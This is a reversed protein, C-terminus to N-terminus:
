QVVFVITMNERGAEVTRGNVLTIAPASIVMSDTGRWDRNPTYTVTYNQYSANGNKAQVELRGRDAPAAYSPIGQIEILNVVCTANARVSFRITSGGRLLECNAGASSGPQALVKLRNSVCDVAEHMLRQKTVLVWRASAVQRRTQEWRKNDSEQQALKAESAKAAARLQKLPGGSLGGMKLAKKLHDLQEQALATDVIARRAEGDQRRLADFGRDINRWESFLIDSERQLAEASNTRKIAECLNHTQQQPTLPIGGLMLIRDLAVAPGACCSLAVLAAVSLGARIGGACIMSMMQWERRMLAQDADAGGMNRGEGVVCLM